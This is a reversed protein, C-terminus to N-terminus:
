DMVKGVARRIKTDPFCQDCDPNPQGDLMEHRACMDEAMNYYLPRVPILTVNESPQPIREV